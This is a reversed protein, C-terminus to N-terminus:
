FKIRKFQSGLRSLTLNSLKELNLKEQLFNKGEKSVFFDSLAVSEENNMFTKEVLKKERKKSVGSEKKVPKEGDGYLM